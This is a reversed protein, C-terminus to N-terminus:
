YIVWYLTNEDFQLQDEPVYSSWDYYDPFYTEFEEDTMGRYSYETGNVYNLYNGQAWFDVVIRINYTISTYPLIMNNHVWNVEPGIRSVITDIKNGTKMEYKEIECQISQMEARDMAQNTFSDIICANTFYVDVVAVIGVGVVLLKKVTLNNSVCFLGMLGLVSIGVFMSLLTRQAYWFSDQVLGFSFPAIICMGMYLIISPIVNFNRDKILCVLTVTLILLLLIVLFYKPLMSYCEIWVSKVYLFMDWFRTGISSSISVNKIINIDKYVYKLLIKQIIISIGASLICM